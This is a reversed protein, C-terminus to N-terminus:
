GIEVTELEYDIVHSEASQQGFIVEGDRAPDTVSVGDECCDDVL